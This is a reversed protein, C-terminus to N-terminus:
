RPFESSQPPSARNVNETRTEDRGAIRGWGRKLYGDGGRGSSRADDGDDRHGHSHRATAGIARTRTPDEPQTMVVEARIQDGQGGAVESLEDGDSLRVCPTARAQLPKMSAHVKVVMVRPERSRGSRSATKTKASLRVDTRSPRWTRARPRGTIISFGMAASRRAALRENGLRQCSSQRQHHVPRGGPARGNWEQWSDGVFSGVQYLGAADWAEAILKTGALVPDSEIDWLVSPNPMPKGSPRRSLVSALDFRFGEVHM